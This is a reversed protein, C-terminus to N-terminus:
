LSLKFRKLLDRYEGESKAGSLVNCNILLVPVFQLNIKSNLEQFRKKSDQNALDFLQYYKKLKEENIIKEIIPKVTHCHPCNQSMFFIIKNSLNRENCNDIPTDDTITFFNLDLGKENQINVKAEPQIIEKQRFSFNFFLIYFILFLYFRRM